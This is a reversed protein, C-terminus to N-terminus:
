RATGTGSVPEPQGGAGFQGEAGPQGNFGPQDGAAPQDGSLQVGPYLRALTADTVPRVVLNVSELAAEIGPAARVARWLAPLDGGHAQLAAEVEAQWFAPAESAVYNGRGRGFHAVALYRLVAGVLLTQLFADAFQVAAENRDARQNFGWAAGAATLGGVLAGLLAGGGLTLGGAMLDASLGTAAGSVVAGLLGAQTRDIPARVAFNERVRTNITEAEGPDVKHLVLMRMTTKNIEGNLRAVLAAMAAEQRRQEDKGLGIAKLASRVMGGGAEPVPESDRVASAVQEATMRLASAYRRRNDAEWAARLRAYGTQKGPEVLPAVAEYFVHEHVWCRAFADLALVERVVPFRALHQKWQRGEADAQAGPRPPGTGNLLVVVPKGLWALINMEAPLYGADGPPEASNVLYLVIDAEDKAARLAQQSLWFPRDRYRDFVERLFWGIPNGAMALRKLLRVSDGFGPTDWLLLTDGAPSALLPHAEAFTTVHAADRVEGVDTGTMTRALTTKGNNTHSVLAFQIKVPTENM